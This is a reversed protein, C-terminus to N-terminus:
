SRNAPRLRVGSEIMDAKWAAAGPRDWILGWPHRRLPLSWAALGQGPQVELVYPIEKFLGQAHQYAALVQAYRDPDLHGSDDTRCTDLGDLLGALVEREAEQLLLPDGGKAAQRLHGIGQYVGFLARDLPEDAAQALAPVVGPGLGLLLALFFVWGKM